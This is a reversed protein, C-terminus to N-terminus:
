LLHLPFKQAHEMQVVKRKSIAFLVGRREVKHKSILQNNILVPHLHPLIYVIVFSM